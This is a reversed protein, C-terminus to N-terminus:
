AEREPEGSPVTADQRDPPADPARKPPSPSRPTGVDDDYLMRVAPTDLDDFQGARASWVYALVSAGAVIIALSLVVFLISM